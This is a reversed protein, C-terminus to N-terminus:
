PEDRRYDLGLAAKTLNDREGELEEIRDAAERILAAFRPPHSMAAVERLRHVLDTM